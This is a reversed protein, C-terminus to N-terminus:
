RRRRRGALGPLAVFVGVALLAAVAYMGARVWDTPPRSVSLAPTVPPAAAAPITIGSAAPAPPAGARAARAREYQRAADLRQVRAVAPAFKAAAAQRYWAEAAMYDPAVGNGTELLRAVHFQAGAYGMLAAQQYLLFADGMDGNKEATAGLAYQAAANGNAAAERLVTLSGPAQALLPSADLATALGAALLLHRWDVTTVRKM